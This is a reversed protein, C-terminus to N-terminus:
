GKAKYLIVCGAYGSGGSYNTLTSRYVGGGGGGGGYYTANSGASNVGGNGGGKNGGRANLGTLDSVSSSSTASYEGDSGDSGGRGGGMLSWGSVSIAFSGGGGGGCFPDSFGPPISSIGQGDGPKGATTTSNQMFTSGGGGSGGSGATDSVQYSGGGGKATLSVGGNSVVSTTGGSNGSSIGGSGITVTYTGTPLVDSSFYGGAGGAGMCYFDSAEYSDAGAGGGGCLWIDMSSDSLTLTGADKLLYIFAEDTSLDEYSGTYAFVPDKGDGSDSPPAVLLYVVGAYGSGGMGAILTISSGISALAGGGGGGAGYFTADYGRGGAKAGNGGGNVGGNAPTASGVLDSDDGGGGNTGGAGGGVYNGLYEAVGGAGGACHATLETMGFPYKSGGDGTGGYSISAGDNTMWGGAGGGTGGSGGKTNSANSASVTGANGGTASLVSSGDVSISTTGGAVDYGGGNGITITYEGADLSGSTAYAGAGGSGSCIGVSGTAAYNGGAGGGCMWVEASDKLTLQGSDTLTYLHYPQGNYIVDACSYSGTYSVNSKRGFFSRAVGGAKIWGGIVRKTPSLYFSSVTQPLLKDEYGVLEQGGETYSLAAGISFTTTSESSHHQSVDKAYTFVITDGKKLSAPGYINALAFEGSVASLVTTGAVTLTLKDYNKETYYKGVIQFNDLDRVATLTITATTSNKGFNNPNLVLGSSGAYTWGYSSGQTVTFYKSLTSASFDAVTVTTDEYIPVQRWRGIQIPM